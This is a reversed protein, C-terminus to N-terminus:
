DKECIVLYRNFLGNGASICTILTLVQRDKKIYVDSSDYPSVVKTEIVRYDIEDWYNTITVTDGIALGRLNDFFIRGIYGTHGAIACNTNKDDLPLSTSALHAAGYSMMYDNAGLYVPLRMGITPASIYCYVGDFIGYDELSLAPDSYDLDDVTGQGKKLNNNYAVSDAYLRELDVAFVIKEDSVREGEENIPYGEEDIYGEERAEEATEVDKYTKVASAKSRDFTDSISEAQQKGILNSIPPFLLFGLGVILMLSAIITLIKKWM